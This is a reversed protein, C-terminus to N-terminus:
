IIRKYRVHKPKEKLSMPVVCTDSVVISLMRMIVRSNSFSYTSKQLNPVDTTIQSVVYMTFHHDFNTLM